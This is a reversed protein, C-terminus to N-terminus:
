NTKANLAFERADIMSMPAAYLRGQMYDVGAEIVFRAQDKTEVGEAILTFGLKKCLDCLEYYFAIGKESGVNDLISKDLKISEANLECLLSLSSFGTGFEDIATNINKEKLRAINDRILMFNKIYATELIEIEIQNKHLGFSKILKGIMADDTLVFPNLNVSVKPEFGQQEWLELDGVVKDVVWRDIADAFGAKELRRLFYPPVINGNPEKLRLLAEFGYCQGQTDLKPQYHILLEGATIEDITKKLKKHEKSLMGQWGIPQIKSEEKVREKVSLKESLQELMLQESNAFSYVRIFPIYILVNTALLFLQLFVLDLSGDGMLYGSIFVPTMWAVSANVVTVWGFDIAIYAILVNTLPCLLFPVLFFPNLVIPVGYIIIESINFVNFPLSLKAIQKLSVDRSTLFVAIVFGLLGGSGGINVFVSNFSGVAIGNFIEFMYIENGMISITINTGHVGLFWFLHVLAHWKLVSSGISHQTSDSVILAVFWKILDAIMPLLLYMAFFALLFPLILNIHRILFISVVHGEHVNIVKLPSLFKLMYASAAPILIAYATAGQMNVGVWGESVVLYGSNVAFCTLSLISCELTNIGINHSIYYSIALVMALPTLQHIAYAVFALWKYIYTEHGLLSFNNILAVSLSFVSSIIIYPLLSIFAERLSLIFVSNIVKQSFGAFIKRM